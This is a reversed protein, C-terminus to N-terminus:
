KVLHPSTDKEQRSCLCVVPKQFLHGRSAVMFLATTPCKLMVENKPLPLSVSQKKKNIYTVFNDAFNLKNTTSVASFLKSNEM